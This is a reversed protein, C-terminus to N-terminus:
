EIPEQNYSSIAQEKIEHIERSWHDDPLDLGQLYLAHYRLQAELSAYWEKSGKTLLLIEESAFLLYSVYFEYREYEDKENSFEYLRPNNKPYSAASFKPNQMALLLYDKYISKAVGLRGEHRSVLIQLTAIFLAFCAVVATILAAYANLDDSMLGFILPFKESTNMTTMSPLQVRNVEIPLPV